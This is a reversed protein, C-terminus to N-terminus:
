KKRAQFRALVRDDVKLQLTGEAVQYSTVLKLADLFEVERDTFGGKCAMLTQAVSHFELSNGSLDYSGFFRNCGDSGSLKDGDQQLYIYVQGEASSAHVASGNLEVLNWQTEVVSSQSAGGAVEQRIESPRSMMGCLAPVPWVMGLISAACCAWTIARRRLRIVAELVV